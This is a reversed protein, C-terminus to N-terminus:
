FRRSAKLSVSTPKQRVFYRQDACVGGCQATDYWHRRTNTANNVFLDFNWKGAEIGVALDVLTIAPYTGSIDFQEPTLASRRKGVHTVAGQFYANLNGISFDYRGVINGKWEPTGPLPTGEPARVRLISGDAKLDVFDEKLEGSYRAAGTSIRLQDTVLWIIDAELGIIDASPGNGIQTIGNEGAFSIQFNQWNAYFAAGNFQLKSDFLQTKWGIEYNSLFESLFETARPDRNIGGPRFGESFTAYTLIDETVQYTLNVRRISEREKIRENVNLCPKLNNKGQYEDQGYGLSTCRPEGASAWGAGVTATSYGNFGKVVQETEFYRAGITLALKETIDFDIFGFVAREKDFRDMSNLYFTNRRLFDDGGDFWMTEALGPRRYAINYDHYSNNSFLGLTGRLRKSQDSNVRLEHTDRKYSDFVNTLYGQENRTGANPFLQNPIPRSGTNSFNLDAYFGTTYAADYFYAYDTYDYSGDVDRKLRGGSYVVDFNGIKGEITLGLMYWKDETFQDSFNAVARSRGVFDSADEGRFGRSTSEQGMLSPTVSWEENLEIRLAARAGLTDVTNFNNKIFPENNITIDDASCDVSAAACTDEDDVGRFTRSRPVNDIWGGTERSWGVLRVAMNDSIPANVFAELVYGNDGYKVANGELAVGAEYENLVPKNTVIRITGAQSSGGFLTGQPGALVEIRSVDYLHLDLNGQQTTIPMEDLYMGVTPSNASPHGRSGSNVGRMTIGAFSSGEDATPVSHLSPVMQVYAFFDLINLEELKKKDLVAISIPVRQLSEESRTATVIIEDLVMREESVQAFAAPSLATSSLMTVILLKAMPLKRLNRINYNTARTNGAAVRHCNTMM